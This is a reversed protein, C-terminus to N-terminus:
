LHFVQRCRDVVRRRHEYHHLWRRHIGHAGENEYDKYQLRHAYNLSRSLAMAAFSLIIDEGNGHPVSPLHEFLHTASLAWDNVQRSCILARTLVVEVPGFIDSKQYVPRVARGFLGHCSHPAAIWARFLVELTEEPILIDDDTHFVANTRALSAAALRTYVGLDTSAEILVCKVPIKACRGLPPGNNFCIVQSVRRYSSYQYLNNIINSPRMWNLTVITIM